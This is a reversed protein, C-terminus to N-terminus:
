DCPSGVLWSCNQQQPRSCWALKGIGLVLVELM